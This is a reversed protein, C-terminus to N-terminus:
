YGSLQNSHRRQQAELQVFKELGPLVRGYRWWSRKGLCSWRRQDLNGMIRRTTPLQPPAADELSRETIDGGVPYGPQHSTSLFRNPITLHKISLPQFLVDQAAM